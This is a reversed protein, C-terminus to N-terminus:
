MQGVSSWYKVNRKLRPNCHTGGEHMMRSFLNFIGQCTKYLLEHRMKINLIWYCLGKYLPQLNSQPLEYFLLKLLWAILALTCGNTYLIIMCFASMINYREGQRGQIDMETTVQAHDHWGLYWPNEYPSFHYFSHHPIRMVIHFHIYM